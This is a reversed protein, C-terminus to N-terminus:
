PRPRCPLRATPRCAPPRTPGPAPAGDRRDGGGARRGSSRRDLAGRLVPTVGAGRADGGRAWFREMHRTRATVAASFRPLDVRGGPGRPAGPAALALPLTAVGHTGRAPDGQPCVRATQWAGTAAQDALTIEHGYPNPVTGRAQHSCSHVPARDAM